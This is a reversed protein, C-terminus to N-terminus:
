DIFDEVAILFDDTIPLMKPVEVTHFSYGSNNQVRNERMQVSYRSNRLIEGYEARIRSFVFWFLESYPCKKRLTWCHNKKM